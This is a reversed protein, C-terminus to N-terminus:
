ITGLEFRGQYEPHSLSGVKNLPKQYGKPQFLEFATIFMPKTLSDGQSHGLTPLPAALYCNFFGLLVVEQIAFNTYYDIM